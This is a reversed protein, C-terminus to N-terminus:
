MEPLVGHTEEMKAIWQDDQVNKVVHYREMDFTHQGAVLRMGDHWTWRLCVRDVTYEASVHSWCVIYQLPHTPPLVISWGSWDKRQLTAARFGLLCLVPFQEWFAPPLQMFSTPSLWTCLEIFALSELQGVYRGLFGDLVDVFQMCTTFHGLHAHLLAPMDWADLIGEQLTDYPPRIYLVELVPLLM